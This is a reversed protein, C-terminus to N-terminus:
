GRPASKAPQPPPFLEPEESAEPYRIRSHYIGTLTNVFSEAIKHLESLTLPVNEFQHDGLKTEIIKQVQDTLRQHTPADLTRVSAEVSDALMLIATERSYPKPGPYRYEDEDITELNDSQEIARRYFYEIRSTGHHM